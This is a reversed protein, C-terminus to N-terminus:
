TIHGVFSVFMSTLVVEVGISVTASGNPDLIKRNITYVIINRRVTM